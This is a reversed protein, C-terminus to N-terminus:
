ERYQSNIKKKEKRKKILRAEALTQLSQLSGALLYKLCQPGATIAAVAEGELQRNGERGGGDGDIRKFYVKLFICAM